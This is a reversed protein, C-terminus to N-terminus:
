EEIKPVLSEKFKKVVEQYETESPIQERTLGKRGKLADWKKIYIDYIPSELMRNFVQMFKICLADPLEDINFIHKCKNTETNLFVFGFSPERYGNSRYIFCKDYEARNYINEKLDYILCNTKSRSFKDLKSVLPHSHTSDDEAFDIHGFSDFTMFNMMRSGGIVNMLNRASKEKFNDANLYCLIFELKYDSNM